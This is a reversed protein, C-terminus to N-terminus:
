GSSRAGTHLRQLEYGNVVVVVSCTADAVVDRQKQRQQRSEEGRGSSLQVRGLMMELIVVRLRSCVKAKLYKGKALAKQKSKVANQPKAIHKNEKRSKQVEMAM